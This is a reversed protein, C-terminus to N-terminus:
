RLTFGFSTVIQRLRERGHMAALGSVRRAVADTWTSPRGGQSTWFDTLSRDYQGIAEHQVQSDYWEWASRNWRSPPTRRRWHSM